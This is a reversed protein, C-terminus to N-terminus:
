EDEGSNPRETLANRETIPMAIRYEESLWRDLDVLRCRDSCFPFHVNGQREIPRRCSGCRVVRDSISGM